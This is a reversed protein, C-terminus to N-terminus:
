RFKVHTAHGSADLRVKGRRGDSLVVEVHWVGESDRNVSTAQVEDDRLAAISAAATVARKAAGPAELPRPAAFRSSLFRAGAPFVEWAANGVVGSFVVYLLPGAQLANHWVSPDRAEQAEDADPVLAWVELEDRLPQPVEDAEILLVSEDALELRIDKM